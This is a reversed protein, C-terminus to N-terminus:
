KLRYSVGLSVSPAADRYHSTRQFFNRKNYDADILGLLNYGNFTFTTNKNIDWSLGTNFFVSETFARTHGQEYYPLNYTSKDLALNYDALDKAGDMGWLIRLSNNWHLNKKLAYQLRLKTIHTNWNAFDDGYGYPMASINQKTAAPQSLTFDLLKTYSHSLYFNFKKRHYNYELDFGYSQANGIYETMKTADNFAVVDHDNFFLAMDFAHTSDLHSFILEYTDIKEVDADTNYIQDYKYLDADDSHRISRNYNLKCRDKTSFAYIFNLKPSYVWPAYTHKDARIDFFTTFEESINLQYEGFFSVTTTSFRTDPDLGNIKAHNAYGISANRGMTDHNYESGLALKNNQNLNYNLLIKGMLNDEGWSRDGNKFSSANLMEIFVDSRMYSANYKITTNTNIKQRFETFFTLQQNQTGTNQLEELKTYTAPYHMQHAPIALSSRTFRTWFTFTDNQIQLHFKHRLNNNFSGNDNVTEFPFPTDAPINNWKDWLPHQIGFAVKHPADENSAGDAKDVGYYVYLGYDDYIKTGYSIEAMLFQEVAGAQTHVFLGKQSTADFTEIKIVGAIAGAGYIASGSGRIVTIKKIDGLMSFWRETIAGGDSAKVNMVKDNVILLIKNNRDSIIGRIGMQSGQTKYMYTFSPVYIELLEDLNRAGSQLIEQHTIVTFSAPIQTTQTTTLTAISDSDTTISSLDELSMTIIEKTDYYNGVEAFLSSSFIGFGAVLKWLSM